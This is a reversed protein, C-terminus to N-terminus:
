KKLKHYVNRIASLDIKLGNILFLMQYIFSVGDMEKLLGYLLHAVKHNNSFVNQRIEYKLRAILALNEDKNRNLQQIKKCVLFTSYAQKDNKAYAKTSQSNSHTRIYTLVEKQYQYDWNRASRVWFDFDEYTLCEDFGELAELVERRMMMTPTPIFYHEIVKSYINGTYPYLKKNAFHRELKKGYRDISIADTYIVGVKENCSEFFAVQKELRAIDLVDDAAFDIIYKGNSAKLGKNFAATSGLNKSNSIFQIDKHRLIEEIVSQSGDMSCDDVVILEINDYTQSWVSEIAEKVFPKQNYCLCIISVLPNPNLPSHFIM